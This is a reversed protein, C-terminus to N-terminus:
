PVNLRPKWLNQFLLRQPGLRGPMRTSTCFTPVNPSSLSPSALSLLMQSDLLTKQDRYSCPQLALCIEQYLLSCGVLAFLGRARRSEYPSTCREVFTLFFRRLTNSLSFLPSPLTSFYRKGKGIWTFLNSQPSTPPPPLM